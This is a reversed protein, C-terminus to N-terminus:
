QGVAPVPPKADGFLARFEGDFDCSYSYTLRDVRLPSRTIGLPTSFDLMPKGDDARLLQVRMPGDKPLSLSTIRFGAAVPGADAGNFVCRAPASLISVLQVEDEAAPDNRRSKVKVAIARAPAVTSPHKKFFVAAVNKFPSPQGRWKAAFHRLLLSPGFNHSAEPALHQGEPWDNWTAYNILQAGRTIASQLLRAQGRALDTQRYHREIRQPGLKLAEQESLMQYHEDNLRYVKSTFYDPYVTQTFAVGKEACRKALRDWFAPEDDVEVWGWVAPFRRLIADIYPADDATRRVHFVWDMAHGSRKALRAFAAAMKEVHEPREALHGVGDVFGDTVWHYFLLAGSRTRLWVPSAGTEDLLEKLAGGWLEVRQAEKLETFEGGLSLCLTVKFGPHRLAAVRVFERVIRNYDRMPELTKFFPYYFQFGDVGMRRACRIEFDVAAELSMEPRLVAWMPLTLYLGGLAATSGAPDHLEPSAWIREGSAGPVMKTMYHALVLKGEPVLSEAPLAPLAAVLLATALLTKM